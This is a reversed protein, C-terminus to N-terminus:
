INKVKRNTFIKLVSFRTYKYIKNPYFKIKNKKKTRLDFIVAVLLYFINSLSWIFSLIYATYNNDYLRLICFVLGIINLLLLVLHSHLLKRNRATMKDATFNSKPTVDFQKKSFGFFEKLVELSLVPAQITEYIKNWTSSRRHDELIDLTFRKLVYAPLWFAIFTPLDCDVVIIGLISFLLPALLYIMRRLGFFWYSVCSLYELKQRFSLGDRSLIKYRKLMQVNGRAWRSRQSLFGDLETVSKGYALVKNIVICTYGKSEILMGTAIDESITDKAFGKIDTLAKRSFVVNTGCCVAANISNKSLQLSHYFYEQEFPIDNELNFRYQFIDPNEFSQPTQVFGIKEDTNLFYPITNMLFDETPAMDADFTAIYPSKSKGLAYNYNGAKAHQHNLRNLYNIHFEDALEKVNPRNGDDCLFIHVKSKDPYKMNLCASVTHNLLSVPENKTAIFVDVDPFDLDDSNPVKPSTKKGVLINMYYTFFDIAEWTEVFLIILAFVISVIGLTTPITFFIRYVIYAITLLLVLTYYISRFFNKFKM